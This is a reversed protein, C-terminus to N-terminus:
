RAKLVKVAQAFARVRSADVRGDPLWTPCIWGGEEFENWAFALVHGTPCSDAHDTIWQRLRRASALWDDATATPAWPGKKYTTWPVPNEERPSPDWGLPFHPIVSKGIRARAENAALSRDTFEAPSTASATCAYCSLADFCAYRKADTGPNGTMGVAYPDGVGLKRCIERLRAVPEPRISFFYVLPRDGVKEYWLERMELALRTLEDDSYPHVTVLIACLHLKERLASKAHNLRAFTIEQLHGDADSPKVADTYTAQPHLDYWCYAFYDIGADIAYQMEREYEALTRHRYEIKGPAVVEAYYPTRDRYKEPGLSRTAATGFYTWSPVSCDWNIVGVRMVPTAASMDAAALAAVLLLASVKNNM